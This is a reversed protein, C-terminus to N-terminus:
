SFTITIQITWTSGSVKSGMLVGKHNLLPAAVTTSQTTGQDIGWENWTFNADSGGFTASFSLVNTSISGSGSVRNFLRHTSGSAATLDTDAANETPVSGGGDGVGIRTHTSDFAQTSGQGTLLNFMRVIGATTLVNGFVAVCDDPQVGRSLIAEGTLGGFEPCVLSDEHLGAGVLTNYNWKFVKVRPNWLIQEQLM